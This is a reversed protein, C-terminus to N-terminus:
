IVYVRNFQEGRLRSENCSVKVKEIILRAQNLLKHIEAM